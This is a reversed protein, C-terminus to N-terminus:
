LVLDEKSNWKFRFCKMELGFLLRLRRTFANKGNLFCLSISMINCNTFDLSFQNKIGNFVLHSGGGLSGGRSSSSTVHHAHVGNLMRLLRLRWVHLVIFARKELSEPHLCGGFPRQPRDLLAEGWFHYVSPQFHTARVCLRKESASSQPM